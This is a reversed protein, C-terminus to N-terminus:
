NLKGTNLQPLEGWGRWYDDNKGLWYTEGDFLGKGVAVCEKCNMNAVDYTAMMTQTSDSSGSVVLTGPLVQKKITGYIPEFLPGKYNAIISPDVVDVYALNPDVTMWYNMGLHAFNIVNGSPLYV